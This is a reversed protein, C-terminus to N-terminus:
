GARLADEAELRQRRLERLEALLADLARAREALRERVVLGEPSSPGLAELVERDSELAGRIDAVEESAVGERRRISALREAAAVLRDMVARSDADLSGGLSQLERIFNTPIDTVGYTEIIPRVVRVTLTSGGKPMDARVRFSGADLAKVEANGDGSLRATVQGNDPRSGDMVFAVPEAADLVVTRETVANVSVRLTGDVVEVDTLARSSRERVTADLDASVAFPLIREEGGNAGDFRADGVFGNRGYVAVLGGPVTAEGDFSLELADLVDITSGGDLMAYAVREAAASADLFPVSLARGSALDVPTPVDFVSVAREAAVEGTQLPAVRSRPASSAGELPVTRFQLGSASAEPATISRQMVDAAVIPAEATQGVAFPAGPRTTRLPSYVDQAYAVPTGVALRLRVDTWDFGTTNELTAWGQLDVSGDEGLLARYSPRWVTTPIVFRFGAEATEALTVSLVRRSEDIEDALGPLLKALRRDVAEGEIAIPDGLPVTAFAIRGEPTAVSIRLAPIPDGEGEAPLEVRENALLRGSLRVSGAGIEVEEGILVDLIAAPDSLGGELLRAEPTRADLSEAAQLDVSSVTANGTIVLTRLVDAVHEREIALSMTTGPGTMTGEISALGGTALTVTDISVDVEQALSLATSCALATLTAALTRACRHITM